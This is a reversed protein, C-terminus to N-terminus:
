SGAETVQWETTWYRAPYVLKLIPTTAFTTVLAMVVLMTFLSESVIGLDVGVNLVVLEMLGRTNMLIGIATADRWAFARARAALAGGGFKGVTAIAILALTLLVQSTSGLLRVQTRLGSYAFFLPMFLLVSPKLHDSVAQSWKGSRPLIAGAVFAGFLAHIGICETAASGAGALALAGLVGVPGVLRRAPAREAWRLLLPRIVRTMVAIFGMSLGATLAGAAVNGARVLAVVIALLCWATVDDVAACAIAVAGVRSRLLRQETLIRALVPFATISMAIGCFLAFSTFPVDAPAHAPWLWWAAVAGLGFPCAISAHSILIVTSTGGKLLALDLELGISLMFLLLGVQSLGHLLAISTPPFLMQMAEPWVWGLGSPGLAIGAVIEAVVVPQALARVPLALTRSMIQVAALQALMVLVASLAAYQM